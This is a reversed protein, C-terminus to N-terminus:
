ALEAVVHLALVDADLEVLVAPVDRTRGVQEPDLAGVQVLLHARQAQRALLACTASRAPTAVLCRTVLSIRRAAKRPKEPTASPANPACPRRSLTDGAM